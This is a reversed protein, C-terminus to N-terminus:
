VKQDWVIIFTSVKSIGAADALGNVTDPNMSGAIEKLAELNPATQSQLMLREVEPVGEM